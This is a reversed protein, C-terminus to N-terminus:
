SQKCFIKKQKSGKISKNQSNPNNNHNKLSSYMMHSIFTKYSAPLIYTKLFKPSWKVWCCFNTVRFNTLHPHWLCTWKIHTHLPTRRNRFYLLRNFYWVDWYRAYFRTCWEFMCIQKNRNRNIAFEYKWIGLLSYMSLYMTICIKKSKRIQYFIVWLLGILFNFWKKGFVNM